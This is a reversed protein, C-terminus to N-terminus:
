EVRVLRYDQKGLGLEEAYDLMREPDTWHWFREKSFLDNIPQAKKYLDLSARDISVM